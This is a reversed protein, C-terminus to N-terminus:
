DASGGLRVFTYERLVAARLFREDEFGQSVAWARLDSPTARGLRTEFFWRFLEDDSLEADETTMAGLDHAALLERKRRAREVFFLRDGVARLHDEIYRGVQRSFAIRGMRMLTEERFFRAGEAGVLGEEKLWRDFAEPQRLERECRFREITALIATDDAVIGRRRAEQLARARVVAGDSSQPFVGRLRLEELLGESASLADVGQAEEARVRADEWAETTEFAYAVRKPGPPAAVLARLRELLQLADARKQHVQGRPLWARLPALDHSTAPGDEVADRLIRALARMPYPLRKGRAILHEALASDVVGAACAAKLTARIDVLAESLARWGEEPGAHAVTVEDDDELEGARFSRFIQGVGEMGFPELEVARLAGMSAAGLVHIGESMAWLIEKHWVAPTRLFLGDIIGIAFPRERAARYVDGFAAPSRVDADPLQQRVDGASVTPGTFLILKV